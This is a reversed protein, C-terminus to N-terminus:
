FLFRFVKGIQITTIGGPSKVINKPYFTVPKLTGTEPDKAMITVPKQLQGPSVAAASNTSVDNSLGPGGALFHTGFGIDFEMWSKKHSNPMFGCKCM